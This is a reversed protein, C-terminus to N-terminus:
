NDELLADMNALLQDYAERTRPQTAPQQSDHEPAEFLPDVPLQWGEHKGARLAITTFAKISGLRDDISVPSNAGQGAAAIHLQATVLATRTRAIRFPMEETIEDLEGMLERVVSLEQPRDLRAGTTSYIVDAGETTATAPYKTLVDVVEGRYARISGVLIGSDQPALGMGVGLAIAEKSRDYLNEYAEAIDEPIRDAVLIGGLTMLNQQRREPITLRRSGEIRQM